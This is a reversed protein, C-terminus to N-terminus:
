LGETMFKEYLSHEEDAFYTSEDSEAFRKYSLALLAYSVHRITDIDTAFSVNLQKKIQKYTKELRRVDVKRLTACIGLALVFAEETVTLNSLDLAYYGRSTSVVLKQRYGLRIMKCLFEKNLSPESIVGALCDKALQFFHENHQPTMNNLVTALATAENFFRESDGKVICGLCMKFLCKILPYRDSDLTMNNQELDKLLEYQSIVSLQSPVDFHGALSNCSEVNDLTVNIRKNFYTLYVLAVDDWPTARLLMLIAERAADHDGCNFFTRACLCLTACGAEKYHGYLIKTLKRTVEGYGLYTSAIRVYDMMASDTIEEGYSILQTLLQEVVDKYENGSQSLVHVCAGLGRATTDTLSAYKLAYPVGLEWQHQSLCLFVQMELTEPDDTDIEMFQRQLEKGKSLNGEFYAREMRQCLNMYFETSKVDYFVSKEAREVVTYELADALSEFDDEDDFDDPEASYYALMSEDASIKTPDPVDSEKNGFYDTIMTTVDGLKLVDVYCNHTFYYRALMNRYLELAYGLDRLACLCGIQNLVSEYSDVRAFLCLADFFEGNDAKDLAASFIVNDSLNITM